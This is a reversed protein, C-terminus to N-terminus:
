ENISAGCNPCKKNDTGRDLKTYCNWCYKSKRTQEGKAEILMTILNALVEAKNLMDKKILHNIRIALEYLLISVLSLSLWLIGIIILVLAQEKLTLFVVLSLIVLFAAALWHSIKLRFLKKNLLKPINKMSTYRYISIEIINTSIDLKASYRHTKIILLENQDVRKTKYGKTELETSLVDVLNEKLNLPYKVQKTALPLQRTTMTNM